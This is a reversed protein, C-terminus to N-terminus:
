PAITEPGVVWRRLFLALALRWLTLFVTQFSLAVLIFSLILPRDYWWSRLLIAISFSLLYVPLVRQWLQGLSSLTRLRHAGLWPSLTFWAVAFPALTKLLSLISLSINHDSRGALAFLFFVAFDGLAAVVQPWQPLLSRSRASPSSPTTPKNTM